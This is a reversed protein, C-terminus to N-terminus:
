RLEELLEEHDRAEISVVLDGAAEAILVQASVPLRFKGLKVELHRKDLHLVDERQQLVQETVYHEVDLSDAQRKYVDLHTYSVTDQADEPADDRDEEGHSEGTKVGHLDREDASRLFSRLFDTLLGTCFEPFSLFHRTQREHSPFYGEIASSAQRREGRDRICM